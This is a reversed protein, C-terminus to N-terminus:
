GEWHGIPLHPYLQRIRALLARGGEDRRVPAVDAAPLPLDGTEIAPRAASDPRLLRVLFAYVAQIGEQDLGDLQPAVYLLLGEALLTLDAPPNAAALSLALYEALDKVIAPGLARRAMLPNPQDPPEAETAAPLDLLWDLRTRLPDRRSQAGLWGDLLQTTIAHGPLDVDIFAFRRMLAFSLAFLSAKDYVNMAGIVRWCPHRVYDYSALASDPLWAAATAAKRPPVIRVPRGAVNYPLDAGQGALVSFLEGFAKDADARNIEDIVLWHGRALAELLRGPRFQLPGAATPMYGGVTDFTTWDATATVLTAGACMQRAAAYGGIAQALTTKGTGPPGILIVHKGASLAGAVQRYLTPPLRLPTTEEVFTQLDQPDIAVDARIATTLAPRDQALPLEESAPKRAQLLEFLGPPILQAMGAGALASRIIRGTPDGEGPLEGYDRVRPRLEGLHRAHDADARYVEGAGARMMLVPISWDVGQDAVLPSILLDLRTAALAMDARGSRGLHDYFYQNFIQATKIPLLDQMAIVAPAGARSLRAGLGSLADGYRASASQCTGLLILAPWRDSLAQVLEEPRVLQATGDERELVLYFQNLWYVGHCILHLVSAEAVERRLRSLTVAKGDLSRDLLVQAAMRERVLRGLAEESTIIAREQASDVVALSSLLANGPQGLDSPACIAVVVKLTDELKLHQVPDDNLRYLPARERVALPRSTEAEETAGPPLPPCLYEWRIAHLAPSNPDLALEVRLDDGGHRYAVQFGYLTARDADQGASPTDHFIAAFLERGYAIPQNALALLAEPVIKCPSSYRRSPQGQEDYYILEVTTQSVDVRLRCAPEVYREM